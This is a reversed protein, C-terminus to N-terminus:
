FIRRAAMICSGDAMIELGLEEAQRIIEDSEAGPQFWLKTINADKAEDLVHLGAKSPIVIVAVDPKDPIDKLNNYTAISDIIQYHPNVGVVRYGGDYLDKLVKYGYKDHNSTAGVIAYQYKKNIFHKLKNM